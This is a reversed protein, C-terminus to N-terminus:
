TVVSAISEPCAGWSLVMAGAHPPGGCTNISKSRTTTGNIRGLSTAQRDDPRRFVYPNFHQGGARGSTAAAKILHYLHPNVFATLFPTGRDNFRRGVISPEEAFVEFSHLTPHYRWISGRQNENKRKRATGPNALPRIIFSVTAATFGAM